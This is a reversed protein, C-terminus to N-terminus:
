KKWQQINDRVPRTYQLFSVFPRSVVQQCACGCVCARSQFGKSKTLSQTAWCCLNSKHKKEVHVQRQPQWQKKHGDDLVLKKNSLM